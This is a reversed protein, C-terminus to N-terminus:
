GVCAREPDWGLSICIVDHSSCVAGGCVTDNLKSNLQLTYCLSLSFAGGDHRMLGPPPLPVSTLTTTTWRSMMLLCSKGTVSVPALLILASPTLRENIELIVQVNRTHNYSVLPAMISRSIEGECFWWWTKVIVFAQQKEQWLVKGSSISPVDGDELM